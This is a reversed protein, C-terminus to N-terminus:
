LCHLRRFRLFLLQVTQCHAQLIFNSISNEIQKCMGNTLIEKLHVVHYYKLHYRKSNMKNQITLADLPSIQLELENNNNTEENITVIFYLDTNQFGNSISNMFPLLVNYYYLPVEIKNDSKVTSVQPPTINNNQFLEYTFLKCQPKIAICCWVFSHTHNIISFINNNTNNSNNIEM